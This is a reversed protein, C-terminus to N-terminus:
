WIQAFCGVAVALAVLAMTAVLVPKPLLYM